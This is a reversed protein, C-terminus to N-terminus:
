TNRCGRDRYKSEYMTCKSKNISESAHKIATNSEEIGDECRAEAYVHTHRHAHTHCIYINRIQKLRIAQM